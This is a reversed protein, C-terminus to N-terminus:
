DADDPVSDPIPRWVPFLDNADTATLRRVNGGDADMLYLSWTGEENSMFAVQEGDASYTPDGRFIDTEGLRRQESGDPNMLFLDLVGTPLPNDRESVFLITDGDLSWVARIDDAPADTLQTIAQTDIDMLYVNEHGERDSSFTIRDGDPSWALFWDRAPDRTLRTRNEGDNDALYLELNLDRLSAWGVQEGGPRWAPDWDLRGEGFLALIAGAVSLTRLDAGDPRVQAPGMEGTRSTLFNIMDGEFSWSPFYDQGDGASTLSREVGDADLIYIEWRGSRDSIFALEGSPAGIPIPDTQLRNYIFLGSIVIILILVFVFILARRKM